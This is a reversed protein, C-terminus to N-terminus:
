VALQMALLEAIAQELSMAQGTNWACAFVDASIRGPVLAVDRSYEPQEALPLPLGSARRKAAAAGLLRVALQLTSPAASAALLGGAVEVGRVAPAPCGMQQHLALGERLCMWARQPQGEARHLRGLVYLWKPLDNLSDDRAWTVCQTLAARAAPYDGGNLAVYGLWGVAKTEGVRDGTRRFLDISHALALEAAPANDQEAEITGQIFLIGALGAIDDSAELLRASEMLAARAAALEGRRYRARALWGLAEGLQSRAGAARAREASETFLALSRDADGRYDALHALNLLAAYCGRDDNRARFLALSAENCEQARRFQGQDGYLWGLGLLVRARVATTDAPDGAPQNADAAALVQELWRSGEVSSGRISWFRALASGLRLAAHGHLAGTPSRLRMLSWSLAARMNDAELSLRALVTQQRLGRLEAEVAEASALCWSFHRARVAEAEGTTELQELAFERITELMSFRPEDATGRTRYVLSNDALVELRGLVDVSALEAGGCVAEAAELTWGGAFVALRRFLARDPPGLLDHSWVLTSRLTQQREPLDVAGDTLLPLRRELRQLLAAPQLLGVRAAALEIALPLGDLRRCVAAVAAANSLDFAFDPAVAQAREVFLRVAPWAAVGDLSALDEPPMVLPGVPVRREARLRLATRSTVLLTVRPCAQLLEALVPGAGLLHEFNDLVLLVRREGLSELLLDHASRGGGERLGLARAITAPVLRPDRVPALDVFVVGDPYVAALEAAVTVALRTKGVGGPGVLTLLRTAATTPELLGKLQVVEAERGILATLPVPPRVPRAAPVAPPHDVGAPQTTVGTALELLAARDAPALGLADALVALTHPHPRQRRDRELAKLTSLGLGAREALREQSLGACERFHRLRAGVSASRTPLVSLPAADTRTGDAGVCGVTALHGV